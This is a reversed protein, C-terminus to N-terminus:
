KEIVYNEMVLIDLATIEFLHFAEEPTEVIPMGKKNLSTNLLVPIGSETYFASLLKTFKPNWSKEVTQVRASGDQHTVNKLNILHEPNTKDVLIMYPSNRGHLFYEQVKEELIAPAFPRFDERFKINLNIHDKMGEIGPHALISRRGLSRPGFESGSQFWAITQGRNLKEACYNVLENEDSFKKPNYKKYEEKNFSVEIESDSYTKGFCTSGNHAVKPMNLYELWGYFACGLALGNDAAASEFYINGAIKSDQLKANAVANLAVGGSYCLNKHPFKELRNHICKLVAKEVQEQAWKAVNAYYEFNNKFYEYGESPNSFQNKWDENVFLNGSTFEFAEFDFIGSKGFPALGMLKGVDDMDGFVYYSVAAYFGGISHQTTPLSFLGGSNEAMKSFDKILPTLKQGDFNYFSDKECLMQVGDLFEPNIYQKQEPHLKLFQELPSGCGDIVMVACESFPCTGVASYAHALHHSIDVIRLDPTEAFLRKGKFQNRNPIEFNACQVVLSIDKLQIGEADLCYQIALNDNGGDHKIRSLREKEIGVCVRGNKLLVASGNHSLGTGLVYVPSNM